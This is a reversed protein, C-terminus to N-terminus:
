TAPNVAKLDGSSSNKDALMNAQRGLRNCLQLGFLAACMWWKIGCSCVVLPMNTKELHLNETDVNEKLLM